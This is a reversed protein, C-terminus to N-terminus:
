GACRLRSRWSWIAPQLAVSELSRQEFVVRGALAALERCGRAGHGSAPPAHRDVTGRLRITWSCLIHGLAMAAALDVIRAASAAASGDRWRGAEYLEEPCCGAHCVARAM